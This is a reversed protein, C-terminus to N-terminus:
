LHSPELSCPCASTEWQWLPQWQQTIGKCGPKLSPTALLEGAGFAGSRREWQVSQVSWAKYMREEEQGFSGTGPAKAQCM